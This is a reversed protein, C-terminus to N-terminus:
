FERVLRVAVTNDTKIKDEMYAPTIVFIPTGDPKNGNQTIIPRHYTKIYDTDTAETYSWYNNNKFSQVNGQNLNLLDEILAIDSGDIFGDQKVDGRRWYSDWDPFTNDVFLGYGRNIEDLDYQSIIGDNNIDGLLYGENKAYMMVLELEGISPIRWNSYGNESYSGITGYTALITAYDGVHELNSAIVGSIGDDYVKIITGGLYRQGVQLGLQKKLNAFSIWKFSGITDQILVKDTSILTQQETINEKILELVEKWDNNTIGEELVYEALTEEVFVRLGIYREGIPITDREVITAKISKYDIPLASKNDLSDYIKIM